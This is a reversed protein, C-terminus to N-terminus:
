NSIQKNEESSQKNEDEVPVFKESMLSSDGADVSQISSLSPKYLM